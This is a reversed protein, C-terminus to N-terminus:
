RLRTAVRNRVLFIWSSFGPNGSVDCEGRAVPFHKGNQLIDLIAGGFLILVETALYVKVPTLGQFRETGIRVLKFSQGSQISYWVSAFSNSGWIAIHFQILRNFDDM